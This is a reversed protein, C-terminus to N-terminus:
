VPPSARKGCRLRVCAKGQRPKVRVAPVAHVFTEHPRPSRHPRSKQQAVVACLRLALQLFNLFPHTVRIRRARARNWPIRPPPSSEVRIAAVRLRGARARGWPIRPYYRPVAPGFRSVQACRGSEFRTSGQQREAGNHGRAWPEPSESEPVSDLGSEPRADPAGGTVGRTAELVASGCAVKDRNDRDTREAWSTTM